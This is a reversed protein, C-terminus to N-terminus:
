KNAELLDREFLIWILINNLLSINCVRLVTYVKRESFCMVYHMMKNLRKYFDMFRVDLSKPKRPVRLLAARPRTENKSTVENLPLENM